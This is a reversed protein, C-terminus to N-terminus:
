APSSRLGYTKDGVFLYEVRLVPEGREGEFTFGVMAISDGVKVEPVQWQNMRFIPALEIEWRRDKRTPVTARALLAAGDVTASQAPVPRQALGAPVALNAPVELVLEAHPNRWAVQVAKGELYIPRNQDFSSWGHHARAAGAVGGLALAGAQLLTRRDM